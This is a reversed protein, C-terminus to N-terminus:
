PNWDNEDYELDDPDDFSFLLECGIFKTAGITMDSRQMTYTSLRTSLVSETLDRLIRSVIQKMLSECEFYFTDEEAFLESTCPGGIWITGERTFYNNDHESSGRARTAPWAWLKKGVWDAADSQGIELDGYLYKTAGLLKNQTALAQFYTKYKAADSLNFVITM